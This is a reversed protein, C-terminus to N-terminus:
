ISEDSLGYCIWSDNSVIVFRILGVLSAAVNCIMAERLNRAIRPTVERLCCRATLSKWSEGPIRKRSGIKLTKLM